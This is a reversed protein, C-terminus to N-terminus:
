QIRNGFEIENDPYPLRYILDDAIIQASLGPIHALGIRKFYFFLQGESIFEKRYEKTLENRVEEVTATSPIDQLIGRSTRVKNLYEIAKPLNTNLYAEAAIYYMEPLKILPMINRYTTNQSQVLKVSVMGRSQTALLANFRIDAAGINQNSTEYLTEATPRLILLADYNTASEANFYQGIIDAFGTVNLSFIQESSLIKDNGVSASPDRLAAPANAIVDEAAQAANQLNEAGGQWLYVRAQVARAAYYNMRQERDNYFGDRNVDEYYNEPRQGKTYIPDQELLALADNLDQEMLTFTQEYTRQPTLNKSLSTVYPITLKSALEPRNAYNYDGYLRLLDFHLYARLALLEGKMIDHDIPNLVGNDIEDLISNVNAIVNYQNKWLADVKDVVRSTKYKYQQADAYLALSTLTEYQRSLLDVLNWTMDKAYLSPQAMGIYVGMLADKFGAETKFQDQAKIQNTATVDLWDKKCSGLGTLLLVAIFPFFTHKLSIKM